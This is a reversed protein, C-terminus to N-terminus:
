PASELSPRRRAPPITATALGNSIVANEPASLILHFSTTSGSMAPVVVTSTDDSGDFAIVGSTAVYDRGAHGTGDATAFAVRPPLASPGHISVTFVAATRDGIPTTGSYQVDIAPLQSKVAGDLPLAWLDVGTRPLYGSFFLTNGAAFFANTDSSGIVNNIVVQLAGFAVPQTSGTRLDVLYQDNQSGRYILQPGGGPGIFPDSIFSTPEIRTVQTTGSKTGDSSLVVLDNNDRYVLLLRDGGDVFFTAPHDALLNTANTALDTTWIHGTSTNEYILLGHWTAKIWPSFSSGDSSTPLPKTGEPTGDTIWGKDFYTFVAVDPFVTVTTGTGLRRTNVTTGDTSYIGGASEFIAYRGVTGYMTASYGTSLLETEGGAGHAWVKNGPGYYVTTDGARLPLSYVPKQLSFAASVPEIKEAPGVTGMPDDGPQRFFLHGDIVQPHTCNCPGLDVTDAASGRSRYLHDSGDSTASFFYLTDGVPTLDRPHVGQQFSSQDPIPRTGAATGDTQWAGEDFGGHLIFFTRDGAPAFDSLYEVSSSFKIVRQTGAATGDTAFLSEENEGPLIGHFWALKKEPWYGLFGFNAPTLDILKAPAKGDWSWIEISSVSLSRTATFVVFDNSGALGDLYVPDSWGLLDQLRVTGADTGDTRWIRLAPDEFWTYDGITSFGVGFGFSMGVKETLVHTGAATGDSVWVREVPTSSEGAFGVFYLKDHSEFLDFPAGPFPGPVLDKVIHTGATTGDTVAVRNYDASYCFKGPACPVVASLPYFGSSIRKTGATSGDTVWQENTRTFWTLGGAANIARQPIFGANPIGDGIRFTGAASGDSRWLGPRPGTVTYFYARGNLATFFDPRQKRLATTSNLPRVLYPTIPTAGSGALACFAIGILAAQRAKTVSM